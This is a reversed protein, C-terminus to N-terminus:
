IRKWFSFAYQVGSIISLALAIWIFILGIDYLDFGYIEIDIIGGSLILCLIAIMQSITKMKGGTEASIIINKSLAIARLGTVLFERVIIIIVIWAPLRQMDVLVILASVILLKDAIPDLIIGLKTVEGFHRALYGDLFDTLSAICFVIAGIIPHKYVILIFIPVLLIRSFTLIIPPNLKLINM